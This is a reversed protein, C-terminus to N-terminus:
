ITGYTKKKMQLSKTLRQLKRAKYFPQKGNKRKKPWDLKSALNPHATISMKICLVYIIPMLFFSSNSLKTHRCPVSTVSFSFVKITRCVCSRVLRWSRGVPIVTVIVRATAKKKVTAPAKAEQKLKLPQNGLLDSFYKATVDNAANLCIKM